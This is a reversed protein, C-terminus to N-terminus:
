AAPEIGLLVLSARLQAALSGDVDGAATRLCVHAADLPSRKSWAEALAGFEYIGRVTHHFLRAHFPGRGSRGNLSMTYDDPLVVRLEGFQEPTIGRRGWPTTKIKM